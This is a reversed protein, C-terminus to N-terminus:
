EEVQLEIIAESAELAQGLERIATQLISDISNSSWLKQTISASLRDRLASQQSEEVLRANELSIAVQTALAEIWAQDDQNWEGQTQLKINGISEERLNLSINIEKTEETSLSTASETNYILNSSRTRDKWASLVYQSNIQRLEQLAQEMEKFLRANEIAIAVQSAMSQLTVIDDSKFDAERISQVDLAGIVREGLILPIAIESRTNPLLPNNFRIASEGTDLAVQPERNLVAAGVMSASTLPLQHHRNKLIEGATGTADKLEAWQENKSLLFIAAYYYDFSETILNVVRTIVVDPDLITSAIRGVETSARLQETREDVRKELTRQFEDLRSLMRNSYIALQGVEDTALVKARQSLDGIEVKRFTSILDQIPLTVSRTLLFVLGTGLIVAILGVLITQNKIDNLVQNSEVAELLVKTTQRYGIPAVLLVAILILTVTSVINKIFLNSWVGGAGTLQNETTSPLLKERAPLLWAEILFIALLISCIASVLGGVLSYVFQDFTTQRSSVMYIAVPLIDILISSVIAISGYKWPFSTIEMWAILENNTTAEHNALAGLRSIVNRCLVAAIGLLFINNILIFIFTPPGSISLQEPSYNATLQILLAGIFATPFAFFQAMAVVLLPFYKGTRHEIKHLLNQQREEPHNNDIM